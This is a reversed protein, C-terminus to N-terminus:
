VTLLACGCEGQRATLSLVTGGGCGWGGGHVGLRMFKSLFGKSDMFRQVAMADEAAGKIQVTRGEPVAGKSSTVVYRRPGPCPFRSGFLAEFCKGGSLIKKVHM